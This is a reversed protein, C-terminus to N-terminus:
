GMSLLALTKVYTNNSFRSIAVMKGESLWLGVMYKANYSYSETLGFFQEILEVHGVGGLYM